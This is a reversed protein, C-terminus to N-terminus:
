PGFTHGDTGPPATEFNRNSAQTMHAVFAEETPTATMDGNPYGPSVHRHQNKFVIIQGRMVRLSEALSTGRTNSTANTLGPLVVAALIGLVVIVVLLELLTFGKRLNM